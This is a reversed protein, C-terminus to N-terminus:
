FHEADRNRLFSMVEGLTPIGQRGGLGTCSLAAVATAFEATKEFSWEKLLGFIFAGHYVDGAGTTDVVEVPFAPTHFTRDGALTYSGEEGLTVVTVSSGYGALSDAAEAPDALGTLAEAFVRSAILYDTARLLDVIDQPRSLSDADLVVPVGAARAIRAAALAAQRTTTDLLLYKASAVVGAPVESPFMEVSSGGAMITRQGTSEDVLIMSVPTSAGPTMILNASDVGYLDFEEKVVRGATDNGVKGAFTTSVGLRSLTVLGTSVMGGGQQTSDSMWVQDDRDPLHPVIGLFDLCACGLGAVDHAM